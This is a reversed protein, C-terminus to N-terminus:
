TNSGARPGGHVEDFDVIDAAAVAVHPRQM